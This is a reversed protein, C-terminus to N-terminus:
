EKTKFVIIEKPNYVKLKYLLKEMKEKDVIGNVFIIIKEYCNSYNYSYMGVNNDLICDFVIKNKILYDKEEKTIIPSRTFTKFVSNNYYAFLLPIYMFEGYGIYIVKNNYKGRAKEELKYRYEIFEDSEIGFIGSEVLYNTDLKGYEGLEEELLSSKKNQTMEGKNSNAFSKEINKNLIKGKVLYVIEISINHEKEFIRYRELEEDNMWNLYSIVIYKDRPYSSNIEKIINLNTNGTTLEDDVLVIPYNNEFKEKKCYIYHDTAHSHEEKFEFLIEKDKIKERTTHIFFGNNFRDFIGQGLGTATEAFGIFIYKNENEYRFNLNAKVFESKDEVWNINGKGNVSMKNLEEGLLINHYLIDTPDTDLHKGLIKSVFLFNRKPNKRSCVGYLKEPELDYKIETIEVM